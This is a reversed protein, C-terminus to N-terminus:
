RTLLQRDVAVSDLLVWQDGRHKVFLEMTVDVFDRHALMEARPQEGTYGRSSELRLIETTQGAALGDTGVARVFANGWEETENQRKFVANLQLYQVTDSTVNELRFSVTPVLKNRGLNDLGADFWGSSVQAVQLATPVDISPSCGISLALVILAAFGSRRLRPRSGVEAQMVLNYILGGSPEPGVTEPALPSGACTTWSRKAHRPMM